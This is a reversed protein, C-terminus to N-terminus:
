DALVRMVIAQAEDHRGVLWLGDARALDETADVMELRESHEAEHDPRGSSPVCARGLLLAAGTVGEALAALDRAVEPFLPTQEAYWRAATATALRELLTVESQLRRLTARPQAHRQELAEDPLAGDGLDSLLRARAALAATAASADAYAQRPTASPWPALAALPVDALASVGTQPREGIWANWGALLLGTALEPAQGLRQRRRWALYDDGHLYPRGGIMTTRGRFRKLRSKAGDRLAATQAHLPLAIGEGAEQEIVPWALPTDDDTAVVSLGAEAVLAGWLDLEAVARDLWAGEVLPSEQLAVIPVALLRLLRGESIAGEVVLARLERGVREVREQVATNRVTAFGQTFDTGALFDAWDQESGFLPRLGAAGTAREDEPLLRVNGDRATYAGIPLDASGEAAFADRVWDGVYGDVGLVSEWPEVWHQCAAELAAAIGAELPYPLLQRLEWCAQQLRFRALEERALGRAQEYVLLLQLRLAPLAELVRLNLRHQLFYLFAIDEIAQRVARELTEREEGRLAERVAVEVRRTLQNLPHAQEGQDPLSQAYAVSSGFVHAEAMWTSIAQRPTLRLTVKDLRGLKASM